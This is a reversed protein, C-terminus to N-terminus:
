NLLDDINDWNFLQSDMTQAKIVQYDFFDNSAIMKIDKKLLQYESIGQKKWRYDLLYQWFDEEKVKQYGSKEFERCKNKVLRKLRIKKKLREETLEDFM